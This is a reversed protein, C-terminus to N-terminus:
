PSPLCNFYWDFADEYLRPYFDTGPYNIEAVYGDHSVVILLKDSEGVFVSSIDFQFEAFGVVALVIKDLDLLDGSGSSLMLNLFDLDHVGSPKFFFSGGELFLELFLFIM